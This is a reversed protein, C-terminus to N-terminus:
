GVASEIIPKSGLRRLSASSSEETGVRTYARAVAPGYINSKLAPRVAVFAASTPQSNGITWSLTDAREM